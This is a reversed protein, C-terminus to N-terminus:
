VNAMWTLTNTGSSSIAYLKNINNIDIKLIDGAELLFGNSTSVSSDGIYIRGTNSSQVKITVYKKPQLSTGGNFQIASTGVSEQATYLTGAPTQNAATAAGSPLASSDIIHHAVHETGSVTTKIEKTTGVADKVQLM